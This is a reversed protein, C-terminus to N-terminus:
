KGKRRVKMREKHLKKALKYQADRQRTAHVGLGISTLNLVVLTLFQLTEGTVTM